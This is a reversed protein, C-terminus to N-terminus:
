SSSSVHFYQAIFELLELDNMKKCYNIHIPNNVLLDYLKEYRPGSDRVIDKEKILIEADYSNLGYQNMYDLKRELPLKPISLKIKELWDNSIKYKPINPEVFYKYDIADAKNRM